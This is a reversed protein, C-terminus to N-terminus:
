KPETPESCPLTACASASTLQRSTVGPGVKVASAYISMRYTAVTTLSSLRTLLLSQDVLWPAGNLKAEIRDLSSLVTQNYKEEETYIPINDSVISDILDDGIAQLLWPHSASQPFPAAFGASSRTSCLSSSCGLLCGASIRFNPSISQM